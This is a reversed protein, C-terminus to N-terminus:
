QNEIFSNIQDVIFYLDESTLSTGSPLCLGRAHINKAVTSGYFPAQSYAKHLHLPKWLRRSEVNKSDLFKIIDIPTISKMHQERILPTTLWRNCFSDEKEAPFEFLDHRLHTEYFDFIQRKSQVFAELKGLQMLGVSALVNSLRYNYGVETHAYDYKGKNAQTALYLGRDYYRNTTILAGGGGTTIIKNGNFSLIGFSGFSGLPTHKYTSGLAEAADEILIIEYEDCLEKIRDIRPPIGYLHTVIIAKPKKNKSLYEHLLDPNLNWRESESDMFVPSAREYLIVNACAAFTFTGVIVEDGAGVEALILALHLASTGSNVALVRKRNFRKELEKEFSDLHPGVPAIWGDDIVKNLEKKEESGVNPPSLYIKQDTM